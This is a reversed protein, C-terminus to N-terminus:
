HQRKTSLKLRAEMSTHCRNCDWMNSKELLKRIYAVQRLMISTHGQKVEMGLYFSLLGLDSMRLLRRMEEKFADVDVLRAGIIILDDVYVWVLVRLTTAGKTYM